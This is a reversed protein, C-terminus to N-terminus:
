INIVRHMGFTQELLLVRWHLRVDETCGLFLIFVRLDRAEEMSQDLRSRIVVQLAVFFLTHSCAGSVSVGTVRRYVCLCM